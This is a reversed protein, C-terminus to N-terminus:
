IETGYAANKKDNYQVHLNTLTSDIPALMELPVICLFLPNHMCLFIPNAHM